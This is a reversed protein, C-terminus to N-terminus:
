RVLMFLPGFFPTLDYRLFGALLIFRDRPLLRLFRPNDILRQESGPRFCSERDAECLFLIKLAGFTLSGDEAVLELQSARACAYDSELSNALDAREESVEIQGLEVDELWKVCKDM